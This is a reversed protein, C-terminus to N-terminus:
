GNRGHTVLWDAWNLIPKLRPGVLSRAAKFDVWRFEEHEARGLAPNVPLFVEGEPSEALYYRAIKGIGYPRTEQFTKGWHFLLGTLGTEEEVERQAGMFPDEGPEVVGKPFDWYQFARLLLYHPSQLGRVIIVGSSLIYSKTGDGILENRM